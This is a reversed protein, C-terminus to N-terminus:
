LTDTNKDGCCIRKKSESHYVWMEKGNVGQGTYVGPRLLQYESILMARDHYESGPLATAGLPANPFSLQLAAITQQFTM